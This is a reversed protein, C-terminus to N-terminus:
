CPSGLSARGDLTTALLRSGDSSLWVASARPGSASAGAQVTLRGAANPIVVTMAGVTGALVVLRETPPSSTRPALTSGTPGRSGTPGALGTPGPACGALIGALGVILALERIM